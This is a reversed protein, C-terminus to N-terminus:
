GLAAAVAEVVNQVSTMDFGPDETTTFLNEGEKFGNQHYWERKWEWAKQYDPRDLMGLHEWLLLDGADTEFSFDPRLKGPVATGDVPREYRYPIGRGHLYNAIVLESKSRVLEGRTTRHILHEAYPIGEAEHRIGPGFLNSNRRAVESREPRTFDYLFSSDDGEVLLVLHQRARTFATYLLERSILRSHRPIVVFVVGFESGQSKHVTLAYALELPAADHAFDSRSFGFRVDPRGAFAVNLFRKKASGVASAALGVEGNALYEEVRERKKGDWGPRNANRVLIVKDGWVIEEDGLALGWPQRASELQKIRFSRQITRNLEHVGHPHLRVPSLIQFREAGNHDEFPVWGEPTLGLARNFGVVDTPAELGLRAVLQDGLRTRLEQPTKWFAVTLDNFSNGLELDSLVRDADIPRPERTYWSALRLADSPGGTASRLEITLRALAGAEPSGVEQRSELWAVVDAFPRGVGIPPLQNPDGVLIIRQVHALDLALLVAMLDDLTLMSCEDIVVTKERRYQETGSLRPRQRAGDYRGLQNLFQAVTMAPQNAKRSIRVRAKGTPALFLIGERRLQESGLLAGLVTTKGTGARGVLVSLRRTTLRELAAAKEAVALVHRDDGSDVSGGSETIADTLLAAWNEGLSPLVKAARAALLKRAKAEMHEIEVLQLCEVASGDTEAGIAMRTVEDAIGSANGAFWDSPGVMPRALDLGGLRTVTEPLSLLADGEDAARRLVTVVAARVRRPDHPSEVRASGEVPHKAGVTDDPMLGRDIVGISVPQDDWDGLDTEVMRYPNALIAADDVPRRTARQRERSDLWRKAQAPTLDFRSLLRVLARRESSLGAWIRSIAKVDGSYAQRPAPQAGTLVSELLPWPDDLRGIMGAAVMERVMCTGMRLGLAELVSGSGPFAGRDKWARAIEGNLWEERRDWPGEAIGHTRILRVSELARVLTSLAVDAGAVEGGYSYQRLHSVDPALAVEDALGHRRLDEEPDGTPALYDHYPLLFGDVGNLRISHSFLRDWLPYTFAATSDYRLLPGVHTIRGLGVVLRSIGESLPHGGKTYFFVLSENPVLRGFVLDCIAEQREASFVWPSSFPPDGDPPLVDPVSDQIREQSERLMWNFPVAFTSYPPIRVKTPRLRGHREDLKAVDQYPHRFLRWWEQDNMFM